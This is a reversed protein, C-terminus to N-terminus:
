FRVQVSAAVSRPDGTYLNTGTVSTWYSKNVVNTVNVRFTVAAMEVKKVYRIGLDGTAFAPLTYLNNVDLFSSGTYYIGATFALERVQPVEYEGYLKFLREAVNTPLRGDLAPNEADNTIRPRLLTVGGFLNLHRAIKGTIGIEV